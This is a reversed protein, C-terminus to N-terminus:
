VRLRLMARGRTLPFVADASEPVRSEKPELKWGDPITLKTM